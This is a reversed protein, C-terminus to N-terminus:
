VGFEDKKPTPFDGTPIPLVKSETPITVSLSGGLTKTM